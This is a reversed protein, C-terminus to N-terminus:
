RRLPLPARRVLAEWSGQGPGGTDAAFADLSQLLQTSRYGDVTQPHPAGFRGFYSRIIVSRRDRPLAAVTRAFRPFSGDRFLYDEVNSTYLASV